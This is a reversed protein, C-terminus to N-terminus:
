CKQPRRKRSARNRSHAQLGPVELPLRRALAVSAVATRFPSVIKRHSGACVRIGGGMRTVGSAGEIRRADM